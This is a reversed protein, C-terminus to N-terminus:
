ERCDPYYSFLATSFQGAKVAVEASPALLTCIEDPESGYLFTEPVLLYSGPPLPLRYRGLADTTIQAVERGNKLSYVTLTAVIPM